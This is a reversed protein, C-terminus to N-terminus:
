LSALELGATHLSAFSRREIAKQHYRGACILDRRDLDLVERCQRQTGRFGQNQSEAQDMQFVTGGAM